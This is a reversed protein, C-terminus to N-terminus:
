IEVDQAIRKSRLKRWLVACHLVTYVISAMLLTLKLAMELNSFTVIGFVAGNPILVRALAQKM